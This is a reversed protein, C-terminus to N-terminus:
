CSLKALKSIQWEWVTTCKAMRKGFHAGNQGLHDIIDEAAGICSVEVGTKLEQLVQTTAAMICLDHLSHIILWKIGRPFTHLLPKASSVLMTRAQEDSQAKSPHLHKTVFCVLKNQPVHNGIKKLEGCTTVNGCATSGCFSCASKSPTGQKPVTGDNQGM